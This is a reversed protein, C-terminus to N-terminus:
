RRERRECLEALFAGRPDGGRLPRWMHSWGVAYLTVIGYTGGIFGAFPETWSPKTMTM